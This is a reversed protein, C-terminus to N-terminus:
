NPSIELTVLDLSPRFLASLFLEPLDDHLAVASLSQNLYALGNPNIYMYFLFSFIVFFVKMRVPCIHKRIMFYLTDKHGPIIFLVYNVVILTRFSSREPGSKTCKLALRPYKIHFITWRLASIPVNIPGSKSCIWNEFM